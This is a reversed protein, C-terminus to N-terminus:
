TCFSFANFFRAFFFFGPFFEGNPLQVAQAMNHIFNGPMIGTPARVIQGNPTIFAQQGGIQVAQANALQANQISPIFLAEQGDVTVTQMPQLVQFMGNPNQIIQGGQIFQPMAQPMAVSGDAKLQIFQQPLNIVGPQGAQAQIQQPSTFLTKVHQQTPTQPQQQQQQPTSAQPSAAQTLQIQSGDSVQLQQLQQAHQPLLSQLQQLTIVQPQPLQAQAQQTPQQITQHITQQPQSNAM